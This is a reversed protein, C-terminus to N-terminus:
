LLLVASLKQKAPQNNELRCVATRPYFKRMRSEKHVQVDRKFTVHRINPVYKITIIKKLLFRCSTTGNQVEYGGEGKSALANHHGALM